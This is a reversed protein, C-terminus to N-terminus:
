TPASDNDDRTRAATTGLVKELSAWDFPQTPHSLVSTEDAGPAEVQELQRQMVAIGADSADVGSQTRATLRERLVDPEATCAVVACPVQLKRALEQFPQRRDRTLFTGDV